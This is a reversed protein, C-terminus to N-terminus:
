ACLYLLQMPMGEHDRREQIQLSSRWLSLKSSLDDQQEHQDSEWRRNGASRCCNMSGAPARHAAAAAAPSLGQETIDKVLEMRRPDISPWGVASRTVVTNM